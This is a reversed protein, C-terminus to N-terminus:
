QAKFSWCQVCVAKGALPMTTGCPWKLVASSPQTFGRGGMCSLQPPQSQLLQLFICGQFPTVSKSMILMKSVTVIQNCKKITASVVWARIRVIQQLRKLWSTSIVAEPGKTNRLCHIANCCVCCWQYFRLWSWSRVYQSFTQRYFYILRYYYFM